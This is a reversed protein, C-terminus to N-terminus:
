NQLNADMHDTQNLLQLVELKTKKFSSSKKENEKLLLPFSHSNQRNKSVQKKTFVPFDLIKTKKKEWFDKM